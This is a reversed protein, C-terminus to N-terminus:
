STSLLNLRKLLEEGEKYGNIFDKFNVPKKGEVQIKNEPLLKVIKGNFKTWTGPWPHYAKIMRALKDRSPSKDTDIFGDEKRLIKTFTSEFHKQEVPKIRGSVYRNIIDPLANAAEKFARRVASEFTDNESIEFPISSIIPGHDVEEDMKIFTIASEKVGDLIQSQIPSSGRYKPLKSPHINIAGFKPTSLEEKTLIKGYSAVVIIESDQPEQVIEFNEKLTQGVPEVYDPTGLFVVRLLKSNVISSQRNSSSQNNKM